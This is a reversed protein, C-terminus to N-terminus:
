QALDPADPTVKAANCFSTKRLAPPPANREHQATARRESMVHWLKPLGVLQAQLSKWAALPAGDAPPPVLAVLGALDELMAADSKPKGVLDGLAPVLM